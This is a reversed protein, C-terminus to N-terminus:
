RRGAKKRESGGEWWNMGPTYDRGLAIHKGFTM